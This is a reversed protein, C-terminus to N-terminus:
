TTFEIVIYRYQIQKRKHIHKSTFQVTHGKSAIKKDTEVQIRGLGQNCEDENMEIEAHKNCVFSGTNILVEEKKLKHVYMWVTTIRKSM